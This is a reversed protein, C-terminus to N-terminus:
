MCIVYKCVYTYISHSIDCSRIHGCTCVCMCIYIWLFDNSYQMKLMKLMKLEKNIPKGGKNVAWTLLQM